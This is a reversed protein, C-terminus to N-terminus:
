AHYGEASEPRETREFEIVWVDPNAKWGMTQVSAAPLTSDWLRRFSVMYRWWEYADRNACPRETCGEQAWACKCGGPRNQPRVGEKQFDVVEMGRLSGREVSKVRLFFGQLTRAWTSQRTGGTTATWKRALEKRGTQGTTRESLTLVGHKGCMCSTARWLPRNRM